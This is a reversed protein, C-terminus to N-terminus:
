ALPDATTYHLMIDVTAAKMPLAGDVTIESPEPAMPECWECAGGLTRDGAIATGVARLIADFAADRTAADAGEVIVELRAMHQYHYRHPSLTEEPEGPAGDTLIMVGSAPLEVPLPENRWVDVGVPAGAKLVTFLGQLVIEATREPM